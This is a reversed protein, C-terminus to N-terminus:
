RCPIDADGAGAPLGRSTPSKGLDRVWGREAHLSKVAFLRAAKLPPSHRQGGRRTDAGGTAAPPHHAPLLSRGSFAKGPPILQVGKM